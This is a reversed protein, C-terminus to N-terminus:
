VNRVWFALESLEEGTLERKFDFRCLAKGYKSVSVRYDEHQVLTMGNIVLTAM